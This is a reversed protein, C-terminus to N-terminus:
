TVECEVVGDTLRVLLNDGQAVDHISKLIKLNEKIQVLSYGRSLIKLPSLTDLKMLTNGTKEKTRSLINEISDKLSQELNAIEQKQPDYISEPTVFIRSKNLHDLRLRNYRLKGELNNILKEQKLYINRKLETKVPMSLEAAASPTPARLDAVMDCITFDTEHGVASIIPIRSNFVARAVSEENFCWLDEMSGGGRGVILVDVENMRNFTEIAAVISKSATDGQVAVPILVLNFESFRRALVNIIDRIVAGKPSTVVGIRKPLLPIKQKYKQDFLGELRLKEKLKEFATYLNGIGDPQMQNVYLQFKGDREYLSAKANVLVRLGDQPTFSLNVASGKFMVCSVAANDDKLTFYLHGSPYKKFSSIEGQITLGSLNPDSELVSMIYRNLQSVTLTNM